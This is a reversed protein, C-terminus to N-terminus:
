VATAEAQPACGALAGRLGGLAVRRSSLLVWAQDGEARGRRRVGGGSGTPSPLAPPPEKGAGGLPAGKGCHGLHPRSCVAATMSGELVALLLM